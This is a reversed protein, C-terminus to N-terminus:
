KLHEVEPEAADGLAEMGASVESGATGVLDAQGAGVALVQVAEVRVEAAVALLAEAEVVEAEVAEAEVGRGATELLLSSDM